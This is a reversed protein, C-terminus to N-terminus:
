AWERARVTEIVAFPCIHDLYTATTTISRHGLQKSIIGIDVGESRLQAAHTHRLGHAHVRKGIGARAGLRRMLRRVYAQTVPTGYTTCLLPAGPGVGRAARAAEWERVVALAGADIGVTRSRGGKGFLVRAAGQAHDVDHPRLSLAEALRLGSRYMVAILARNRLGAPTQGCAAMIARVETDTLVEPPLRKVPKRRKAKARGAGSRRKTM